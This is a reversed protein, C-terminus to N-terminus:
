KRKKPDDNIHSQAIQDDLRGVLSSGLQSLKERAANVDDKRKLKLYILALNYQAVDDKPDLEVAKSEFTIAEEYKKEELLMIGYSDYAWSLGAPVQAPL